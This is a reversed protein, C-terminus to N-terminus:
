ARRGPTKRAKTPKPKLSAVYVFSREFWPHLKTPEALLADPVTVYKRQVVGYAEFLTTKFETVFRGRDEVGLRLALAGRPHLYSSMNGNVSTYLNADGKVSAGPTMAALQEYLARRRLQEPEAETPKKPM